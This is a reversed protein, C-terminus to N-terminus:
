GSNNPYSLDLPVSSDKLMVAIDAMLVQTLDFILRYPESEDTICSFNEKWEEFGTDTM